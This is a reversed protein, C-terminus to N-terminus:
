DDAYELADMRGKIMDELVDVDELLEKAKFDSYAEWMCQWAYEYDREFSGQNSVHRLVLKRLEELYNRKAQILPESILNWESKIQEIQIQLDNSM